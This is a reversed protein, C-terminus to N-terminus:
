KRIASNIHNILANIEEETLLSQYSPMGKESGYMIRHRMLSDSVRSEQLTIGTGVKVQGQIGHCSVCYNHYVIEGNVAGTLPDVSSPPSCSFICILFGLFLVGRM